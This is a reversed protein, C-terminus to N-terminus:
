KDSSHGDLEVVEDDPFLNRDDDAEEFNEDDEGTLENDDADKEDKEEEQDDEEDEEQDDELQYKEQEQPEEEEEDINLKMDEEIISLLTNEDVDDDQYFIGDVVPADIHSRAKTKFVAVWQDRDKKLSPYPAYYVQQVQYTLVFPDYTAYKKSRNVDFLEYRDHITM